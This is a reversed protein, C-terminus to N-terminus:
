SVKLIQKKSYEFKTNNSLHIYKDIIPILIELNPLDDHIGMSESLTTRRFFDNIDRKPLNKYEYGNVDNYIITTGFITNEFNIIHRIFEEKTMLELSGFRDEFNDIDEQKFLKKFQEKEKKHVRKM